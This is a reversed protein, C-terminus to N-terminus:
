PGRGLLRGVREGFGPREHGGVHGTLEAARSIAATRIRAIIGETIDIAVSVAAGQRWRLHRHRPDLAGRHGLQRRETFGDGHLGLVGRVAAQRDALVVFV